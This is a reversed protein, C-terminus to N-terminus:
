YTPSPSKVAAKHMKSNWSDVDGGTDRAAAFGLIIWCESVPKDLNEVAPVSCLGYEAM